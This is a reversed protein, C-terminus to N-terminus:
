ASSALWPSSTTILGATTLLRPTRLAGACTRGLAGAVGRVQVMLAAFDEPTLAQDADCLAVSPDPHVEVILGDAGAAVAARAMPPVKARIGTGHSPDVIVPLHSLEHVTVVATIDLM